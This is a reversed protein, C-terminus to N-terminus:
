PSLAFCYFGGYGGGSGVTDHSPNPPGTEILNVSPACGSEDLASMWNSLDGDIGGDLFPPRIGGDIRMGGDFLFGVDMIRIGGDPIMGPGGGGPGGGGGGTPWPHGCRPRGDGGGSSTWDHCTASWDMSHLTGSANTGTLMDHNDVNGTGDPNHNPIGHENPLDNAIAPDAGRPRAQVLDAKNLAIVRSLRDYWPGNGVRDIANVPQGAPGRTVSLFARWTKANGPMSQLAIQRCIEDAGSLGDPQGFRLDGGFGQPNGSLSQLAALSAVFFSFLPDDTAKDTAAGDLSTADAGSKSEGGCGALVPAISLGLAVAFRARRSFCSCPQM